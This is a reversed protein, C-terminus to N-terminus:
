SLWRPFEAVFLWTAKNLIHCFLFFRVPIFMNVTSLAASYYCTRSFANLHLVDVLVCKGIRIANNVLYAKEPRGCSTPVRALCYVFEAPEFPLAPSNGDTPTTKKM